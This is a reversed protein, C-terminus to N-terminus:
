PRGSGGSGALSTSPWRRFSRADDGGKSKASRSDRGRLGGGKRSGGVEGGSSFGRSGRAGARLALEAVERGPGFVSLVLVVEQRGDEALRGALELHREAVADDLREVRADADLEALLEKRRSRAHRRGRRQGASTACRQRQSKTSQGVRAPWVDQHAEIANFDECIRTPAM